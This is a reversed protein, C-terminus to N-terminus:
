LIVCTKSKKVQSQMLKNKEEQEARLRQKLTHFCFQIKSRDFGLELIANEDANLYAQLMELMEAKDMETLATLPAAPDIVNELEHRFVNYKLNISLLM